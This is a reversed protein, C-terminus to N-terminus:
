RKSRHWSLRATLCWYWDVMADRQVISYQGDKGDHQWAEFEAKSMDEPYFRAGPPRPGYSEIFPQDGALRDWPGYNYLAFRKMKADEIGDLLEDKDGWVQQWFIDDTIKGADILLGIM